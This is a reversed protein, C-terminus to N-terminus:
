TPGPELGGGREKARKLAVTANQLLSEVSPGDDPFLAVGLSATLLLDHGGISFPSRLALRLKDAIVTMDEDRNLGPLLLTFVDRYAKITNPSLNRQAGLYHALFNTVLISFDTPKM